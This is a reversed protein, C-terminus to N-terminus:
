LCPPVALSDALWSADVEFPDPVEHVFAERGSDRVEDARARARDEDMVDTEALCGGPVIEYEVFHTM